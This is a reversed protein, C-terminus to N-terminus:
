GPEASGTELERELDAIAQETSQFWVARMGHERAARCNVELDDLFLCREGAVGIRELTIRYIEPDPKRHGVFGSDVVTDFIEEVPLKARWLPEWERVNNTCLGLRLGRGRLERLYDILRQNPHLHSFYGEAFGHLSVPRGLARGLEQELSALFDSEAVRGTELEFLPNTGTRQAIAAMAVGLAEVPVGSDAAYGTFADILPSTLVGGFDSIM